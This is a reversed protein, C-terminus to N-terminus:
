RKMLKFPLGSLLANVYRGKQYRGNLSVRPLETTHMLSESTLVGPQTTVAILIGAKAVASAERKSVATKWGYPYSFSQPRQGTLQQVQCISDEIESKLREPSVRRLNVHNITHAGFHALPDRALSKIDTDTMVLENVIALPNIQASRAADDVKQVALDEDISRVFEALRYFATLKEAHTRSRVIEIGSGFDFPFSESKQTLRAATEWWITRTRNIFSPSIFITYPTNFKRFVHAAYESNNKYGDDLTFAVFRRKDMRESLLMPLDHLHVPTLGHALASRIVSELFEPTISLIDNPAFGITQAPRVHHLTFILGRGGANPFCRHLWSNSTLELGARIACYKVNNKVAQLSWM